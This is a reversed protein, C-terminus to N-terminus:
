DVITYNITEAQPLAIANKNAIIWDKTAQTCTINQLSSCNLFMNSARDYATDILSLELKKIIITKLKECGQFVSRATYKGNNYEKLKINGMNVYELSHCESFMSDIFAGNNAFTEGMNINKVFFAGVFMRELIGNFDLDEFLGFNPTEIGSFDIDCDGSWHKCMEYCCTLNSLDLKKIDNINNVKTWEFMGGLSYFQVNTIFDFDVEKLHSLGSFIQAYRNNKLTTVQSFDYGMSVYELSDFSGGYAPPTIIYPLSIINFYAAYKKPTCYLKTIQLYLNSSSTNPESNCRISHVRSFSPNKVQQNSYYAYENIFPFYEGKLDNFGSKIEVINYYGYTCHNPTTTSSKQVLGLCYGGGDHIQCEFSGNTPVSDLWCIYAKDVENRNLDYIKCEFVYNDSNCGKSEGGCLYYNKFLLKGKRTELPNTDIWETGGIEFIQKKEISYLDTGECIYSNPNNPDFPIEVWRELSLPNDGGCLESNEQILYKKRYQPPNYDIWTKGEDISYQKKEISYLDTGECIYSNPNNPDFPVPVWKEDTPICDSNADILEGVIYEPPDSDIWSVGNDISYQKRMRKYLYAM